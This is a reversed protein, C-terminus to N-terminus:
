GRALFWCYGGTARDKFRFELQYSQGTEVATYWGDFVLQVDDPHLIPEWSTDGGESM